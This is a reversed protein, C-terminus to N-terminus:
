SSHAFYVISILSVVESQSSDSGTRVDITIIIIIIIIIITTICNQNYNLAFSANNKLHFTSFIMGIHHAFFRITRTWKLYAM